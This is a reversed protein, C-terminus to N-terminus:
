KQILLYILSQGKWIIAKHARRAKSCGANFLIPLRYVHIIYCHLNCLSIGVLLSINRLFGYFWDDADSLFPSSHVPRHFWCFFFFSVFLAKGSRRMSFFKWLARKGQGPVRANELVDERRKARDRGMNRNKFPRLPEASHLQRKPPRELALGMRVPASEETYQSRREVPVADSGRRRQRNISQNISKSQADSRGGAIRYPFWKASWWHAVKCALVHLKTFKNKKLHM